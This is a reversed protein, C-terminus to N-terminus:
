SLYVERACIRSKDIIAIIIISIIAVRIIVSIIAGNIIIAMLALLFACVACLAAYANFVMNACSSSGCQCACNETYNHAANYVTTM